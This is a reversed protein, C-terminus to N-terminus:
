IYLNDRNLFKDYCIRQTDIIKLDDCNILEKSKLKNQLINIDYRLQPLYIEEMFREYVDFEKPKSLLGIYFLEWKYKNIKKPLINKIYYKDFKCQICNIVITTNTLLKLDDFLGINSYRNSLNTKFIVYFAKDNKLIMM